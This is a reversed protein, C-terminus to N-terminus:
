TTTGKRLQQRRVHWAELTSRIFNMSFAALLVVGIVVKQLYPNIDLFQFASQLAAMLVAAAATNVISGKGGRLATGGLVVTAIVYLEFEIGRGPQAGRLLSAQMLASIATFAGVLAFVVLTVRTLSIGANIAAQRSNGVAQIQRGLPHRNKFLTAIVVLAVFVFFVVPLQRIYGNGLALFWPEDFRLDKGGSVMFAGGRYVYMMGLTAIFAPIRLWSVLAGNLMGCLAGILVVMVVFGTTGISPQVIPALSVAVVGILGLMAGVSLDFAGFIICLTMGIAAIGIYSSDGLIAFLNGPSIFNPKICGVGIVVVALALFIMRERWEIAAWLRAQWSLPQRRPVPAAPPSSPSMPAPSSDNM